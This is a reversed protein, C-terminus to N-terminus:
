PLFDCGLVPWVATEQLQLQKVALCVPMVRCADIDVPQISGPFHLRSIFSAEANHPWLTQVQPLETRGEEGEMHEAMSATFWTWKTSKSKYLFSRGQRLETRRTHSRWLEETSDKKYLFKGCRGLERKLSRERSWGSM